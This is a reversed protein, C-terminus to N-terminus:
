KAVGAQVVQLEPRPLLMATGRQRGFIKAERCTPVWVDIHAGRIKSGTDDILFRGLYKEGAYLEIYRSLPFLKRDAAVIGPRVYRGRRTTGSLCYATVLVPVPEGAKLPRHMSKTWGKAAAVVVVGELRIPALPTPHRVPNAVAVEAAVRARAAARQEERVGFAILVGLAITAAALGTCLAGLSARTGDRRRLRGSM